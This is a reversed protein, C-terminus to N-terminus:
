VGSSGFGNSGRERENSVVPEYFCKEIILQAIRDGRKVVFDESGHNFLIVKIEGTYDLDIVGGGVDINNRWALGSRPAVRGYHGEPLNVSIGTPILANNGALVVCDYVACLDYGASKSSGRTFNRALSLDHDYLFKVTLLSM